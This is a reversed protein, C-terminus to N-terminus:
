WSWTGCGISSIQLPGAKTTGVINKQVKINNLSKASLAQTVQLYQIIISFIAIEAIFTLNHPKM